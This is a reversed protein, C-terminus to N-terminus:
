TTKQPIGCQVLETELFRLKSASTSPLLAKACVQPGSLTSDSTLSLLCQSSPSLAPTLNWLIQCTNLVRNGISVPLERSGSDGHVLSQALDCVLKTWTPQISFAPWPKTEWFQAGLLFVHISSLLVPHLISLTQLVFSISLLSQSELPLHSCAEAETYFHFCNMGCDGKTDM